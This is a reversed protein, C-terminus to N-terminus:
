FLWRKAGPVLSSGWCGPAGVSVSWVLWQSPGTTQTPSSNFCSAILLPESNQSQTLLSRPLHLFHDVSATLATLAYRVLCRCQQSLTKRQQPSPQDEPSEGISKLCLSGLSPTLSPAQCCSDLQVKGHGRSLPTQEESPHPQALSEPINKRGLSEAQDEDKWRAWSNVKSSIFPM